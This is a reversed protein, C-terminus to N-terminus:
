DQAEIRREFVWRGGAHRVVNYGRLGDGNADFRYTGQAGEHGRIALLAARLREPETTGADAVAKALLTV